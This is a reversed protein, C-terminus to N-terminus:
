VTLLFRQGIIKFTSCRLHLTYSYGSVVQCKYDAVKDNGPEFWSGGYCNFTIQKRRTVKSVPFRKRTGWSNKAPVMQSSQQHGCDGQMQRVSWSALDLGVNGSTTPVQSLAVSNILTSAGVRREGVTTNGMQAVFNNVNTGCMVEMARLEIRTSADM